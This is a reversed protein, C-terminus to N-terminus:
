MGQINEDAPTQPGAANTAEQNLQNQQNELVQPESAQNAADNALMDLNDSANVDAANLQDQNKSGCAALALLGFAVVGLRGNKMEFLGVRSDPVGSLLVRAAIALPGRPL